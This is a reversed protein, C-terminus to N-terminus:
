MKVDKCSNLVTIAVVATANQAEDTVLHRYKTKARELYLQVMLSCANDNTCIIVVPDKNKLLKTICDCCYQYHWDGRETDKWYYYRDSMMYHISHKNEEADYNIGAKWADFRTVKGKM